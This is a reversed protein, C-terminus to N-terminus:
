PVPAHSPSWTLTIGQLQLSWTGRQPFLLGVHVVLLSVPPRLGVAVLFPIRGVDQIAKSTSEEM